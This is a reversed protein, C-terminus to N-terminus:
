RQLPETMRTVASSKGARSVRVTSRDSSASPYSNIFRRPSAGSTWMRTRSSTGIGMSSRNRAPSRSRTIATTEPPHDGDRLLGFGDEDKDPVPLNDSGLLRRVEVAGREGRLAPPLHVAERCLPRDRLRGRRVRAIEEPRDLGRRDELGREMHREFLPRAQPLPSRVGRLERQILVHVELAAR